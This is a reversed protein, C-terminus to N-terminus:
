LKELASLLRLSYHESVLALIPASKPRSSFDAPEILLKSFETWRNQFECDPHELIRFWVVLELTGRRGDRHRKEIWPKWQFSKLSNVFSNQQNNRASPDRSLINDALFVKAILILGFEKTLCSPSIGLISRSLRAPLNDASIDIWM